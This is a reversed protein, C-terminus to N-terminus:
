LELTTGSNGLVKQFMMYASNHNKLTGNVADLSSLYKGNILLCCNQIFFEPAVYVAKASTNQIINQDITPLNRFHEPIMMMTNRIVPESNTGEGRELMNIDHSQNVFFRDYITRLWGSGSQNGSQPIDASCNTSSGVSSTTVHDFLYDSTKAFTRPFYFVPVKYTGIFNSTKQVRFHFFSKITILKIKESNMM